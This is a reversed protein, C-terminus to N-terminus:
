VTHMNFRRRSCAGAHMTWQIRRVRLESNPNFALRETGDAIDYVGETKLSSKRFPNGGSKVRSFPECDHYGGPFRLAGPFLRRSSCDATHM